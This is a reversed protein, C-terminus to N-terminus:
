KVRQQLREIEAVYIAEAQDYPDQGDIRSLEERTGGADAQDPKPQSTFEPPPGPGQEIDM